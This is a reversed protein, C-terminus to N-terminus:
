ASKAASEGRKTVHLHRPGIPSQVTYLGDEDTPDELFQLQIVAKAIYEKTGWLRFLRKKGDLTVSRVNDPSSILVDCTIGPVIIEEEPLAGPYWDLILRRLKEHRLIQPKFEQVEGDLRAFEEVLKRRQSM